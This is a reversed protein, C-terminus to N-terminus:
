LLVRICPYNNIIWRKRPKSSNTLRELNVLHDDHLIVTLNDKVLNDLLSADIKGIEYQLQIISIVVKKELESLIWEEIRKNTRGRQDKKNEDAKPRIEYLKPLMVQKFFLNEAIQKGVLTLLEVEHITPRRHNRLYKDFQDLRSFLLEIVEIDNVGVTIILRQIKMLETQYLETVESFQLANKILILNEIIAPLREENKERFQKWDVQILILDKPENSEDIRYLIKEIQNQISYQKDYIVYEFSSGQSTIDYTVLDLYKSFLSNADLLIWKKLNIQLNKLNYKNINSLKFITDSLTCIYNVQDFTANSENILDQIYESIFSHCTYTEPTIEMLISQHKQILDTFINNCLTSLDNDTPLISNWKKTISNVFEKPLLKNRYKETDDVISQTRDRLSNVQNSTIKSVELSDFDLLNGIDVNISNIRDRWIYFIELDADTKVYDM